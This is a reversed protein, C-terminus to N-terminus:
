ITPPLWICFIDDIYKKYYLINNKFEKLVQFNYGTPIPLVSSTTRWSLILYVLIYGINLDRSIYNKVMRFKVLQETQGYNKELCGKPTIQFPDLKRICWCHVKSLLPPIPRFRNTHQLKQATWFYYYYLTFFIWHLFSFYFTLLKYIVSGKLWTQYQSCQLICLAQM